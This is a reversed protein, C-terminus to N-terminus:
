LGNTVLVTIAIMVAIVWLLAFAGAGDNSFYTKMFKKMPEGIKQPLFLLNRLEPYLFPRNV